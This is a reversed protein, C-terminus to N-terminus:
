WLWGIIGTTVGALILSLIANILRHRRDLKTYKEYKERAEPRENLHNMVDIDESALEVNDDKINGDSSLLGSTEKISQNTASDRNPLTEEGLDNPDVEAEFLLQLKERKSVLAYAQKFDEVYKSKMKCALWLAPKMTNAANELPDKLLTFHSVAITVLGTLVVLAIGFHLFSSGVFVKAFGSHPDSNTASLAAMWILRIAGFVHGSVLGALAGTETVLPYVVALLFVIAIPPGIMANVSQMAVYLSNDLHSLVPIWLVGFITMIVVWIRGARVLSRDSARPYVRKFVDMAFITSASNFTSALVSLIAALMAAIMLGLVGNPMMHSMVIPFAKNAGPCEGDEPCDMDGPYLFRSAIGPLCWAFPITLKLFGAMISGSAGHTASKAALGRQVMEQETCHFWLMLWPAGFLIATWSYEGSEQYMKLFSEDIGAAAARPDYKLSHSLGSWGGVRHMVLGTTISGGVVLLITNVVEVHIVAALGGICTFIGTFALLLVVSTWMGLGLTSEMIIAGSFLSASVRSIIYIVLSMAALYVRMNKGFRRETYEPMTFVFQRMFIPLFVYALLLFMYPSAMDFFSASIGM